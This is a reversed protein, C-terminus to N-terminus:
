LILAKGSNTLLNNELLELEHAFINLRYNKIREKEPKNLFDVIEKHSTINESYWTWFYERKRFTNYLLPLKDINIPQDNIEIYYRIINNDNIIISEGSPNTFDLFSLGTDSNTQVEVIIKVKYIDILNPLYRSINFFEEGILQNKTEIDIEKSVIKICSMPDFIPRYYKYHNGIGLKNTLQRILSSRLGSIILNVDEFDPLINNLKAYIKEIQNTDPNKFSMFEKADVNKKSSPSMKLPINYMFFDWLVWTKGILKENLTNSCIAKAVIRYLIFLHEENRWDPSLVSGKGKYLHGNSGNITIWDGEELTCGNITASKSRYDIKLLGIGSVCPKGMGRSIVPAHSTMGGRATIIGKSLDMGSLDEPSVEIRCLICSQDKKNIIEDAFFYIQGTAVGPSAPLGKGINELIDENQIIPLLAEEIDSFRIRSIVELLDIVKEFFLDITIQLNAKSTRKERRANLIWLKGNQIVFEFDVADKFHKELIEKITFNSDSM